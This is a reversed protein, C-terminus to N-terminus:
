QTNKSIIKCYKNTKMKFPQEHEHTLFSRSFNDFPMKQPLMKSKIICDNMVIQKAAKMVSAPGPSSILEVPRYIELM